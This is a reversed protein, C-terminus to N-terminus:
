LNRTKALVEETAINPIGIKEVIVEGTYTTNDLHGHKLMHFTITKSARVCIGYVKGDDGNLGSPIDIAVIYKGSENIIEILKYTLGTVQRKLGTGFIGDM